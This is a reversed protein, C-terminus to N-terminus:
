GNKYWRAVLTAFGCDNRTSPGSRARYRAVHSSTSVSWSVVSLACIDNQEHNSEPRESSHHVTVCKEGRPICSTPDEDHVNKSRGNNPRTSTAHKKQGLSRAGVHTTQELPGASRQGWVFM